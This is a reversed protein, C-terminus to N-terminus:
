VATPLAAASNVDVTAGFPLRGRRSAAEALEWVSRRLGTLREFQTDNLVLPRDVLGSQHLWRAAAERTSLVDLAQSQRKRITASLDLCVRGSTFRFETTASM